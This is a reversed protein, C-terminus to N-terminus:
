SKCVSNSRIMTGLWVALWLDSGSLWDLMWPNTAASPCFNKRDILIVEAQVEGVSLSCCGSRIDQFLSSLPKGQMAPTYHLVNVTQLASTLAGRLDFTAAVVSICGISRVWVSWEEWLERKKMRELSLSLTLSIHSTAVSLLFCELYETKFIWNSEIRSSNSTVLRAPSQCM